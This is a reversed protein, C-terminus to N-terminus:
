LGKAKLFPGYKMDEELIHHKLWDTLFNILSDDIEANHNEFSTIFKTVDSLLKEHERKQSNYDPYNYEIFLKEEYGFHGKTFNALEKLTRGLDPHKKNELYLQYLTNVYNVIKYHQYDIETIGTFFKESWFFIEPKDDIKFISCSVNLTRAMILLARAHKELENTGASHEETSASIEEAAAANSEAVSAVSTMTHNINENKEVLETISSNIKTSEANIIKSQEYIKDFNEKILNFAKVGNEVKELNDLTTKVSKQSETQVKLVIGQIQQTSSASKEALKKIENAVVAFGKGETGARAAEISANLALLNTQKTITTILSVIEGIESGLQGLYSIQEAALKSTDKIENIMILTNDSDKKGQSAINLFEDAITSIQKIQKNVQQSTNSIENINESCVVIDNVQDTAGIALQETTKAVEEAIHNSNQTIEGLKKGSKYLNELDHELQSVLKRVGSATQALHKHLKSSIDDNLGSENKVSFSFDGEKMKELVSFISKLPANYTKSILIGTISFFVLAFISWSILYNFHYNISIFYIILPSFGAAIIFLILKKNLSM